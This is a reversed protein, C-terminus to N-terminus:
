NPFAVNFDDYYELIPVIFNTFTNSFDLLSPPMHAWRPIPTSGQWYLPLFDFPPVVAQTVKFAFFLMVQGSFLLFDWMIPCLSFYLTSSTILDFLLLKSSSALKSQSFIYQYVWLDIESPNWLLSLLLSLSSACAGVLSGSYYNLSM